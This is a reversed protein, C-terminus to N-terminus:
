KKHITTPYVIKIGPFYVRLQNSLFEGSFLEYKGFKRPLPKTLIQQKTETYIATKDGLCGSALSDLIEIYNGQIYGVEIYDLSKPSILEFTYTGGVIQFGILNYYEKYIENADLFVFMDISTDAVITDSVPHHVYQKKLEPDNSDHFYRNYIDMYINNLDFYIRPLTDYANFWFFGLINNPTSEFGITYCEKSHNYFDPFPVNLRSVSYRHAPTIMPFESTGRAVKLFYLPNDSLNKYTIHLYAPHVNTDSLENFHFGLHNRWEVSFEVSVDQAGL